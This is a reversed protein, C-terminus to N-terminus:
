PPPPPPPPLPRNYGRLTAEKFKLANPRLRSHYGRLHGYLADLFEDRSPFPDHSKKHKVGEHFGAFQHHKYGDYFRLTPEFQIYLTHSKDKDRLRLTASQPQHDAIYELFAIKFQEKNELTRKTLTLKECTVLGPLEHTRTRIMEHAEPEDFHLLDKRIIELIQRTFLNQPTIKNLFDLGKLAAHELNALVMGQAEGHHVGQKLFQRWLHLEMARDSKFDHHRMWKTVWDPRPHTLMKDLVKKFEQQNEDSLWKDELPIPKVTRYKYSPYGHKKLASRVSNAALYTIGMAIGGVVAGVIILTVGMPLMLIAGLAAGLAMMGLVKFIEMVVKKVKENKLCPFVKELMGSFGSKPKPTIPPVAM